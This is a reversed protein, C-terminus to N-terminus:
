RQAGIWLAAIQSLLRDPEATHKRLLERIFRFRQAQEGQHLMEFRTLRRPTIRIPPVHREIFLVYRKPPAIEHLIGFRQQLARALSVANAAVLEFRRDLRRM